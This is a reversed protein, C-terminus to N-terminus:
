IKDLSKASPPVKSNFISTSGQPYTKSSYISRNAEQRNHPSYDRGGLIKIATVNLRVEPRFLIDLSESVM